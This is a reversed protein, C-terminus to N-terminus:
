HPRMHTPSVYAHILWTLLATGAIAWGIWVAWRQKRPTLHRRGM